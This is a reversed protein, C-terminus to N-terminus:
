PLEGTGRMPPVNNPMEDNHLHLVGSLLPLNEAAHRSGNM